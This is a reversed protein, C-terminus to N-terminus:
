RKMGGRTRRQKKRPVGSRVGSDVAEFMAVTRETRSRVYRDTTSLRKHGAAYQIAATDHTASALETLRAHRFGHTTFRDVGAAKCAATLTNRLDAHGFVLAGPLPRVKALEALM